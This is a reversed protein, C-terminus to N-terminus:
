KGSKLMTNVPSYNCHRSEHRSEMYLMFQALSVYYTKFSEKIIKYFPM